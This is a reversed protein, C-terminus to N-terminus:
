ACWSPASKMPIVPPRRTTGSSRASSRCLSHACRDKPSCSSLTPVRISLVALAPGLPRSISVPQCVHTGDVSICEGNPLVRVYDWNVESDRFSPWGHVKSEALFDAMTRNRPAVFLPKASVTDYFTISGKQKRSAAKVLGTREWSGKPEAGARNFCGIQSALSADACAARCLVRRKAAFEFMPEWRKIDAVDNMM